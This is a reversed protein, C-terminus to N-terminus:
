FSVRLSDVGVRVRNKFQPLLAAAIFFGAGLTLGIASVWTYDRMRTSAEIGETNRCYSRGAVCEREYVVQANRAPILAGLGGLAFGGGALLFPLVLPNQVADTTVTAERVRVLTPIVVDRQESEAVTVTLSWPQYGKARAQLVHTGPDVPLKAGLALMTIARGDVVLEFGEHATDTRVVLSPVRPALKTQQERIFAERDSRRDSVALALAADYETIATALKGEREHCLALNTLTGGAPALRQSEAFRPCAASVDGADMRKLAEDFLGQAVLTDDALANGALFTCSIIIACGRCRM